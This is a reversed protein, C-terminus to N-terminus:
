KTQKIVWYILFGLAPLSGALFGWVGSKVKLMAIDIRNQIHEETLKLICENLRDIEKLVLEKWDKSDDAM